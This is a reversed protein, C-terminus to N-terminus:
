KYNKKIIEELLKIYRKFFIKLLILGNTLENKNINDLNDVYKKIARSVKNDLDKFKNKVKQCNFFHTSFMQKKDFTKECFCGIYSDM